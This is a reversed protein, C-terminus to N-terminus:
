PTNPQYKCTTSVSFSRRSLSSSCLCTRSCHVATISSYLAMSLFSLDCMTLDLDTRRGDHGRRTGEGEGSDLGLGLGQIGGEGERVWGRGRGLGVGEVRGERRRGLGEGEEKVGSEEKGM